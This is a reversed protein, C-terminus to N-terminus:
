PSVSGLQHEVFRIAQCASSGAEPGSAPPVCTVIRPLLMAVPAVTVKPLTAAPTNPLPEDIRTVVGAPLVAPGTSTAMVFGPEAAAVSAPPNM